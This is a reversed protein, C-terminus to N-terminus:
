CGVPASGGLYPAAGALLDDLVAASTEDGCRRVAGVAAWFETKIIHFVVGQETESLNDERDDWRESPLALLTRVFDLLAPVAQAGGCSELAEIAAQVTIFEADPRLGAALGAPVRPDACHVALLRAAAAACGYTYVARQLLDLLTDIARAGGIRALDEVLHRCDPTWVRGALADILTDVARPDGIKGLARALALRIFRDHERGYAAILPAVARADGIDGLVYAARERAADAQPEAPLAAAVTPADSDTAPLCSLDPPVYRGDIVAILADVAPAGLAVLRSAATRADFSYLYPILREAEDM